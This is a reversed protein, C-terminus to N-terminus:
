GHRFSEFARPELRFFSKIALRTRGITVTVSRTRSRKVVGRTKKHTYMFAHIHAHCKKRITLAVRKRWRRGPSERSHLGVDLNKQMQELRYRESARAGM